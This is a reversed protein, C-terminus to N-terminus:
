VVQKTHIRYMTRFGDTHKFPPIGNDGLVEFVFGGADTIRDGRQPQVAEGNLTYAAVPILFDKSEWTIIGTQSDQEFQTQGYTAKVSSGITQSGRAITVSQSASAQVRAALWTSGTSLLDTM